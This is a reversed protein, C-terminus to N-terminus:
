AYNHVKALALAMWAQGWRIYPIKSYYPRGTIHSIFIGHYFYGNPDQLNSITWSLVNKLLEESYSSHEKLENLCLIAESCSHIDIRYLKNPQFKPITEKEFFNNLYFNFGIKLSNNVDQRPKIKNISHLMRLVYGTHYHDVFNRNIIPPGDYNFSGDARQDSITYTIAREALTQWETNGIEIGVKLLYEAVFLNLNHVYNQFLPTYAFCISHDNQVAYPLSALFRAIEECHLLYKKEKSFQYWDWYADGVATTVIGNATFAPILEKSQWDFPYGWGMGGNLYIGNKDLWHLYNLSHDKYAINGTKNYLELYARSLLGAAKANARPKIGFIKRSALPFRQFLEYVVERMIEFYRSSDGIRQLNLVLKQGKIDYPDWGRPGNSEIWSLLKSLSQRIIQDM